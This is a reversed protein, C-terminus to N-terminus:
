RPSLDITDAIRLVIPLYKDMMGYCVMGDPLCLIPGLRIRCYSLVGVCVTLTMLLLMMTFFSDPFHHNLDM